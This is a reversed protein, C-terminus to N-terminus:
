INPEDYTMAKKSDSIGKTTPDILFNYISIVMIFIIYPNSFAQRIIEFLKYWSTIESATIGMYAFISSIISVILQIYFVPNKFRIKWNIMNKVSWDKSENNTPNKKKNLLQWEVKKELQEIRYLTKDNSKMVGIMSGIITGAMSILAVIITSDIIKM